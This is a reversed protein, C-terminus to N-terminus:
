LLRHLISRFNRFQFEIVYNRLAMFKLSGHGLCWRYSHNCLIEIRWNQFELIHIGRSVSWLWTMIFIRIRCTIFFHIAILRTKWRNHRCINHIWIIIRMFAFLDIVLHRCLRIHRINWVILLLKVVVFTLQLIENSESILFNLSLFYFISVSLIVQSIRM